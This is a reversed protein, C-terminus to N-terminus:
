IENAINRTILGSNSKSVSTKIDITQGQKLHSIAKM